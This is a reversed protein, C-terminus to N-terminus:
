LRNLDRPKVDPSHQHLLIEIKWAPWFSKLKAIVNFSTINEREELAVGQKIWIDHISYDRNYSIELKNM